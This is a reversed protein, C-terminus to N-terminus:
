PTRVILNTVHRRMLLETDLLASCQRCNISMPQHFVCLLGDSNLTMHKRTVLTLAVTYTHGCVLIVVLANSPGYRPVTCLEAM